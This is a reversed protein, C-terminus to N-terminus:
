SNPSTITSSIMNRYGAVKGERQEDVPPTGLLQRFAVLHSFLVIPVVVAPLLVFPFYFIAINPQDFAFQQVPSPASLVANAVIFLLLSLSIINWVWVWTRRLKGRHWGFYAVLPATIGALIDFNRGAFTMLDPVVQHLALGYLVLEVPIRIVSIYTLPALPLRDIFTRGSKRSFLWLMVLFPPVMTFMIRPPLTDTSASYFGGFALASQLISWLALGVIIRTAKRHDVARILVYYFAVVTALTTIGFALPISLPLDLM